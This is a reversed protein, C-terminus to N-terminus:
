EVTRWVTVEQAGVTDEQGAELKVTRVEVMIKDGTYATGRRGMGIGEMGMGMDMRMGGGNGDGDDGGDGKGGGGGGEGCGARVLWGWQGGRGM